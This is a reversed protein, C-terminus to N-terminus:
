DILKTLIVSLNGLCGYFENVLRLDLFTPQRRNGMTHQYPKRKAALLIKSTKLDYGPYHLDSEYDYHVDLTTAVDREVKSFQGMWHPPINATVLDIFGDRDFRSQHHFLGLAHGTEHAM